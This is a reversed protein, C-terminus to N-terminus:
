LRLPRELRASAKKATLLLFKGLTARKGIRKRTLMTVVFRASSLNLVICVCCTM